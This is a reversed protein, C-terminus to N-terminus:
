NLYKKIVDNITINDQALKRLEKMVEKLPGVFYISNSTIYKRM